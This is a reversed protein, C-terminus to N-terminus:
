KKEQTKMNKTKWLSAGHEIQSKQYHKAKLKCYIVFRLKHIAKKQCKEQCFWVFIDNKQINTLVFIYLNTHNGIPKGQRLHNPWTADITPM